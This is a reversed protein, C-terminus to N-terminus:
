IRTRGLVEGREGGIRTIAAEAVTRIFDYDSGTFFAAGELGARVWRRWREGPMPLRVQVPPGEPTWIALLEVPSLWTFDTLEDLGDPDCVGYTGCFFFEAGRLENRSPSYILDSSCVDSSWDRSFRTHRRRS